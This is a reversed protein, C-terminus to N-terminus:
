IDSIVEQVENKIMPKNTFFDRITEIVYDQENETLSYSSPLSIGNKYVTESVPFVSRDMNMHHYCPQLHLPCFFRRTQIGKSKLYLELAERKETLFSSFWYVPECNPDIEIRKLEDIQKLGDHYKELIEKKRRIIEPLKGMQSVGVASQMETISLNFGIHEHIFTGRSDRGHNKLRRIKKDIEPNNTLVVGGEGCTITKNGYFSIIGLDGYLGVHQNKYRVGIAQAADEIVKLGYESTFTLVADLNACQGYLHVPMIAKTKKTILHSAKNVDMCLHNAEIECFVPTAGAMIVANASAVFTLNPVIVEDGPEIDLAKLGAFLAMSGNSVAIAHKAGTYEMLLKEFIKTTLHETLFTSEIVKKLEEWERHDIWPEIQIITQAKTM